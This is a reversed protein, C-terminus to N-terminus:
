QAVILRYGEEKSGQVSAGLTSALANLIQEPPQQQDFTGTVPEGRLADDVVIPVEYFTGLRDVIV